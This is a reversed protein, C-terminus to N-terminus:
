EAAVQRTRRRECRLLDSTLVTTSNRKQGLIRSRCSARRRAKRSASCNFFPSEAPVLEEGGGTHRETRLFSNRLLYRHTGHKIICADVFNSIDHRCKFAQALCPSVDDFCRAPSVDDFAVLLYYNM